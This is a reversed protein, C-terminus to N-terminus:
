NTRQNAIIINEEKKMISINFTKQLISFLLDTNASDITGTFTLTKLDPNAFSVKFGYNEELVNAIEELSANEFDLKNDLWATYKEAEVVKKEINKSAKSFVVLEGPKMTTLVGSESEPRLLKVKGTKLVVRTKGRRTNVNFTTGLVQVDLDDTHVIFKQSNQKHTVSFFGEGKLWVERPEDLGWDNSFNISSNANLIVVSGDPLQIHRNQANRTEYAVNKNYLYYSASAIFTLAIFVAAVRTWSRFISLVKTRQSDRNSQQDFAQNTAEIRNWLASLENQEPNDTDEALGLIIEKAQQIVLTNEPNQSAWNLWKSGDEVHNSKVWRIFDKNLILDELTYQPKHM